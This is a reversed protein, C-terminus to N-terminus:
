SSFGIHPQQQTEVTSYAPPAIDTPVPYNGLTAEPMNKASLYGQTHVTQPYAYGHGVYTPAPPIAATTVINSPLNHQRESVCVAICSGIGLIICPLYCIFCCIFAGIYSWASVYGTDYYNSNYYYYYYYYTYHSRRALSHKNDLNHTNDSSEVFHMTLFLVTLAVLLSVSKLSAM